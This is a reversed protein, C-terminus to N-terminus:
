QRIPISHCRYAIDTVVMDGYLLYRGLDGVNAYAFAKLRFQSVCLDPCYVIYYTDASTCISIAM